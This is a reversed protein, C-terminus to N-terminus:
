HFGAVYKHKYTYNFAIYLKEMGHCTFGDVDLTYGTTDCGCVFSGITNTCTHLCNDMEEACEDVDPCISCLIFSQIYSCSVSLIYLIGIIGITNSYNIIIM